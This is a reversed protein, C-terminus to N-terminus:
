IGTKKDNNCEEDNRGCPLAIVAIWCLASIITIILAATHSTFWEGISRIVDPDIFLTIGVAAAAVATILVAGAAADKVLKAIPNIKPSVLDITSEIATNTAEAAIVAGITLFIVAKEGASFEYFPMLLLVYFAACCHIRMNRETKICSIIGSVAFIFSRLFKIM